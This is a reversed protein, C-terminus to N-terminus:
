GNISSFFKSGFLKYNSLRRGGCPLTAGEKNDKKNYNGM